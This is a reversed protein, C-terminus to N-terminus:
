LVVVQMASVMWLYKCLKDKVEGDDDDDDDSSTITTLFFHMLGQDQKTYLEFPEVCAENNDEDIFEQLGHPFWVTENGEAEAWM